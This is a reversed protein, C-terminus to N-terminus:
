REYKNRRYPVCAAEIEDWVQGVIKSLEKELNNDIIHQILKERYGVFDFESATVTGSKKWYGEDVLFDVNSGVDDIGIANLIPVEVIREKGTIRNKKISVKSTIGIQREKEVGYLKIKKKIDGADKFWVEHTAWFRIARGGSYTEQPGGFTPFKSIKDRAQSVFFLMSRTAKLKPVVRALGAAHAKANATGYTGGIDEGAAIQKKISEIDKEFQRSILGDKSDVIWITPGAKVAKEIAFYTDEIFGPHIEEAGNYAPANIRETIGEGFFADKDMQDGFEPKHYIFSYDDFRPNVHAEALVVHAGWTKGSGSGGVFHVFSGVLYGGSSRGSLACNFLTHGSSLLDSAPIITQKVRQNTLENKVQEVQEAIDEQEESM